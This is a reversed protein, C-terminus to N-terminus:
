DLRTDDARSGRLQVVPRRLPPAEHEIVKVEQTHPFVAIAKM